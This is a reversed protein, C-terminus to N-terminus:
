AEPRPAPASMERKLHLSLLLTGMLSSETETTSPLYRAVVLDLLWLSKESMLTWRESETSSGM